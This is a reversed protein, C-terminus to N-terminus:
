NSINTIGNYIKGDCKQRADCKQGATADDETLVTVPLVPPDLIVSM